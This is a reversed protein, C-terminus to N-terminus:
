LRLRPVSTKRASSAASFHQVNYCGYKIYTIYYVFIIIKTETGLYKRLQKRRYFAKRSSSAAIFCMVVDM